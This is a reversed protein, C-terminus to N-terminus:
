VLGDSKGGEGNPDTNSVHQPVTISASQGAQHSETEKFRLLVVGSRLGVIIGNTKVPTWSEGNNTSYEMLTTIVNGHIEGDSGNKSTPAYVSIDRTSPAAPGTDKSTFISVRSTEMLKEGKYNYGEVRCWYTKGRLLDSTNARFRAIGVYYDVDYEKEDAGDNQISVFLKFKQSTNARTAIFIVSGDKFEISSEDVTPPVEPKSAPQNNNQENSPELPEDDSGCAALVVSAAFVLAITKLIKNM